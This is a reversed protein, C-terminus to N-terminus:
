NYGILNKGPDGVRAGETAFANYATQQQGELVFSAGVAVVVAFAVAVIFAKM